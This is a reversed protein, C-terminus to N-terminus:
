FKYQLFGGIVHVRFNDPGMDSMSTAYFSGAPGTYHFDKNQFSDVRYMLRGTLNKTFDKVLNVELTDMRTVTDPYDYLTIGTNTATRKHKISTNSRTYTYSIGLRAWNFDHSLTLGIGNTKTDTDVPVNDAPNRNTNLWCDFTTIDFAGCGAGAAANTGDNLVGKDKSAQYSVWAGLQTEASVQWNADLNFSNQKSERPGIENVPYEIKALQTSFGLDIDERLSYGIRGNFINQNRDALEYKQFLGGGAYATFSGIAPLGFLAAQVAAIFNERSYKPIGSAGYGYKEFFYLADMYGALRRSVGAVVDYDDGRKRDHEFSGRLTLSDFFNRGTYTLKYKDEHTKERERYTQKINEREYSFDISQAKGFLYEASATYNITRDSRAYAIRSRGVTNGTLTPASNAPVAPGADYDWWTKALPNYTLFHKSKNDNEQYRAGARLTLSDVPETSLGFNFMTSDIRLDSKCRVMPCGGIGNWNNNTASPSLPGGTAADFAVPHIREDQTSSGWSFGGTLRTSWFDWEYRGDGKVFINKNDPAITYVDQRNGALTSATYINSMDNEFVSMGARLNFAAKGKFYQLGVAYDTTRHDIPEFGERGGDTNFSFPREGERKETTVTAFFKWADSATWDGRVGMRKRTLGIEDNAPPNVGGDVRRLVNGVLRYRDRFTTSFVHPIENYFARVRWSNYQGFQLDYFQDDQGPNGASGNLYFANAPNELQLDFWNLGFGKQFDHYERYKSYKANPSGGLFGIEVSGSYLLGSETQNALEGSLDPPINYLQGTPTHRVTDYSEEASTVPISSRGQPNMANGSATDAGMASNGFASQAYAVGCQMFLAGVCVALLKKPPLRMEKKEGSPLTSNQTQSTM